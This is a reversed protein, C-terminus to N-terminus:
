VNIKGRLKGNFKEEILKIIKKSYDEIEENELTKDASRFFISFSVSIKNEPINKGKYIDFVEIKQIPFKLSKIEKEVKEWNIDKPFIFSFDRKSYPFKPLPEFIKEFNAYKLYNDMRIECVYVQQKIDFYKRMDESLIFIKGIEDNKYFITQGKNKVAYIYDEIKFELESFGSIKLFKEIKGKFKFYSTNNTSIMLIREIEKFIEGDKEFTKGIEFFELENNQHYINYKITELAGFLLTNRLHSFLYSLPNEIKVADINFKKVIDESIFSLTIIENFGLKVLIERIKRIKEYNSDVVTPNLSVVPIEEPIESYKKYKALEEIIDIEEKIDKRFEPVLIKYGNEKEEINFNIKSLTEKIFKDEFKIGIVKQPMEKRLFIEKKIEKEEGNFSMKGIEGGCLNKIMITAREMGKKAFYVGLGKEFRLSAETSLGLKKSCKRITIPNFFASEILINTTNITVETNIGGMIGAIAIPKEEDAIILIDEVDREKEDLTIIKEGKKGRRVIIKGKIKDLDFIHLPQGVEYMVFNSIDVLIFSSRLGLNEIKEKFKEPTFYNRVNKMIRCSYYPCDEFNEILVPMTETLTENIKIKEERLEFEQFPLTEKLIGIFSLLDPRNAPTELEFIVDDSKELIKPNLGLIKLLSLFRELELNGEIYDLLIKYSYRM